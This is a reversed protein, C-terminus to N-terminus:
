IGMTGMAEGTAVRQVMIKLTPNSSTEEKIFELWSPVPFSIVVLEGLDENGRRSLADKLTEKGKKYEIVFDFEILKHLWKQKSITSIKQTWLYKPSKKYTRVIFQHGLLYPWWKKVAM